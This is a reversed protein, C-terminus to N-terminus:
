CSLIKEVSLLRRRAFDNNRGILTLLRVHEHPEQVQLRMYLCSLHSLVSVSSVITEVATM